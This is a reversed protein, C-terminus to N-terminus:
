RIGLPDNPAPKRGGSNGGSGGMGGPVTNAGPPVVAPNFLASNDGRFYAPNKLNSKLRKQIGAISDDLANKRNEM